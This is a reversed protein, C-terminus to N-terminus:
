AYEPVTNLTRNAAGDNEAKGYGLGIKLNDLGEVQSEVASDGMTPGAVAEISLQDCIVLSVLLDPDYIECSSSSPVKVTTQTDNELAKESQTISRGEVSLAPLLLCYISHLLFPRM